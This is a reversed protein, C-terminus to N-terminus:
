RVLYDNMWGYMLSRSQLRCNQFNIIHQWGHMCLLCKVLFIILMPCNKTETLHEYECVMHADLYNHCADWYYNDDSLNSILMSQCILLM